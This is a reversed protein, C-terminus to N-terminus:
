TMESGQFKMATLLIQNSIIDEQGRGLTFKEPKGFQHISINSSFDFSLM